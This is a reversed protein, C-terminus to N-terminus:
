ETGGEVQDVSLKAEEEWNIEDARYATGDEKYKVPLTEYVVVVDFDPAAGEPANEIRVLLSETRGADANDKDYYLYDRYYYFGDAGPIWRSDKSPLPYESKQGAADVAEYWYSLPYADGGFARARVYVPQTGEEVTIVVRKMWAFFEEEITTEEELRVTYGGETEVYTTFYAWATGISSGLVLTVALVALVTLLGSRKKM